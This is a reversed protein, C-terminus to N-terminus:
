AAKLSEIRDLVRLYGCFAAAALKGFHGGTFSLGFPKFLDINRGNGSIADAILTGGMTTTALGQGCHGVSYWVNSSLQGIQPMRHRSCGMTGAWAIDIKIDKLSPFIIDLDAKMWADLPAPDKLVGAGGGWLLRNDPLLRFYNMIHRSDYAAYGCNVSRARQEPTLPETVAIYTNIPMTASYLPLSLKPTVYGSVAFVVHNATIRAGTATTIIQKEGQRKIETCRTQEYIRGGLKEIAQGLGLCYELPELQFTEPMFTAGLYKDSKFNQQTQERDWYSWNTGYINNHAEIEAQITQPTGTCALVATGDPLAGCPIKYRAARAKILALADTTLTFIKRANETGVRAEVKPMGYDFSSLALGGNRGSAGWGIRHADILVVDRGREALSLAINLGSLGGGIVCIDTEINESLPPTVPKTFHATQRYATPIYGEFLPLDPASNTM